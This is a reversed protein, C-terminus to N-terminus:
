WCIIEFDKEWSEKSIYCKCGYAVLCYTELQETLMKKQNFVTSDDLCSLYTVIIKYGRWLSQYANNTQNFILCNNVVKLIM